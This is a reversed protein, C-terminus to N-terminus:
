LALQDRGLAKAQYLRDDARAMAHELGAEGPAVMTLGLSVTYPPLGPGGAAVAGRMRRALLQGEEASAHPLVAVFEDGGLRALWGGQEAALAAARAALSALVADGAAHGHRDNISKFHDIDILILAAGAMVLGPRQAELGARNWAGTLPDRLAAERLTQQAREGPMSLLGLYLVALLLQDSLMPLLAAANLRAAGDFELLIAVVYGPVYGLMALGAIRRGRWGAGGGRLLVWGVLCVGALLGLTGCIRGAQPMPLPLGWAALWFPASYALACGLLPLLMWAAFPRPGEFVRAGSILLLNSGVLSAFLLSGPWPPLTDTFLQFGLLVATYLASSLAWHLLHDDEGRGRWLVLFVATFAISLLLSCLRVTSVDPLPFM